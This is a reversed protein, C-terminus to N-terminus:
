GIFRHDDYVSTTHDFSEDNTITLNGDDDIHIDDGLPAKAAGTDFTLLLSEGKIDTAELELTNM